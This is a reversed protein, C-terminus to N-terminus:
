FTGDEVRKMAPSDPNKIKVRRRSRGSEYPLDKRKAIIGEHGLKCAHEFLVAGDGETHDNYQIGDKLKSLLRALRTKREMLKLKRTDPNQSYFAQPTRTILM